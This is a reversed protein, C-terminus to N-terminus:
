NRPIIGFFGLNRCTVHSTVCDPLRYFVTKVFRYGTKGFFPKLMVIGFSLSVDAVTLPHHDADRRSVSFNTTPQFLTCALFYLSHGSTVSVRFAPRRAASLALIAVTAGVTNM